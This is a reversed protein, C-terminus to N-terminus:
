SYLAEMRMTVYQEATVPEYKKPNAREDWCGPLAEIVADDNPASFFPISYRARCMEEGGGEAEVVAGAERLRQVPPAGVRHVTSRWRGNSWRELLDGVNVLLTGEVPPAPRFSGPRSPDEVELGGVADQFLITLSGFDSHAGIRSTTAKGEGRERGEEGGESGEDGGGGGSGEGGTLARVPVPPYHLLRLQFASASHRESLWEERPLGLGLALARLLAHVVGDCDRFFSQLFARFGPLADDPLWINPQRADAENGTEYSEKYDPVRRLAAIAAADDFVHQSVKEVGPASYGRHHSGGPPHPALSKTSPPLAFFQRSWEFAADVREKPVGHNKLYVFGVTSLANDLQNAVAKKAAEDGTYFPGFDVIPVPSDPQITSDLSGM